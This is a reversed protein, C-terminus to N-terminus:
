NYGLLQFIATLSWKVARWFVWAGCLAVAGLLAVVTRRVEFAETAEMRMLKRQKSHYHSEASQSDSSGQDAAAYQYGQYRYMIRHLFHPLRGPRSEAHFHSRRVSYKFDIFALSFLFSIFIVPTMLVQM